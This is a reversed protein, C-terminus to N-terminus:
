NVLKCYTQQYFMFSGATMEQGSPDKKSGNWEECNFGSKMELLNQLTMDKKGIDWNENLM